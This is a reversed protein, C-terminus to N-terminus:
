VGAARAIAAAFRDRTREPAFERVRERGKAILRRRLPTDEVIQRLLEGGVAPDKRAMLVGADGLTDPVAAAAFALVPVGAAMAEVVPVCFGEHESMTVYADAEAYLRALEEDPVHGCLRVHPDLGLRQILWMLWLNYEGIVPLGVLHLRARPNVHRKYHYFLAITDQFCKNPIIRGVSLVNVYGDAARERRRARAAHRAIRGLEVMVPVVETQRYGAQQLERRSYESMATALPSRSAFAGLRERGLRTDREARPNVGAFWTPPTINHYVLVVPAETENLLYEATESWVAYHFVLLENPAPRHDRLPRAVSRYHEGPDGCYLDGAVGLERLGRWKNLADFSVADGPALHGVFHSVTIGRERLRRAADLGAAPADVV